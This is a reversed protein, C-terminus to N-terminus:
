SPTRIGNFVTRMIVRVILGLIIMFGVLAHVALLLLIAVPLLKHLGPAPDVATGVDPELTNILWGLVFLILLLFSAVTYPALTWVSFRDSHRSTKAYVSMLIPMLGVALFFLVFPLEGWFTRSLNELSGYTFFIYSIVIIIGIASLAMGSYFLFKNLKTMSPRVNPIPINEDM